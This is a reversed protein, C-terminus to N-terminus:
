THCARLGRSRTMCIFGRAMAMHFGRTMKRQKFFFRLFCFPYMNKLHISTHPNSVRCSVFSALGGGFFSFRKKLRVYIRTKRRENRKMIQEEM